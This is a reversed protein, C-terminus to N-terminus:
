QTSKCSTCSIKMFMNCKLNAKPLKGWLGRPSTRSSQPSGALARQIWDALSNGDNKKKKMIDADGSRTNVCNEPANTRQFDLRRIPRVSYHCQKQSRGSERGSKRFERKFSLEASNSCISHVTRVSFKISSNTNASSAAAKLATVQLRYYIDIEYNYM